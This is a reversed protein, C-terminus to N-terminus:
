LSSTSSNNFKLNRLEKVDHILTGSKYARIKGHRYDLKKGNPHINPNSNNIHVIVMVKHWLNGSFKKAFNDKFYSNM